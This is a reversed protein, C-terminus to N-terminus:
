FKGRPIRSLDLTVYDDRDTRSQEHYFGFSHLLEHYAAKQLCGTGLSIPREKGKGVYTSSFFVFFYHNYMSAVEINIVVKAALIRKLIYLRKTRHVFECKKLCVKSENPFLAM